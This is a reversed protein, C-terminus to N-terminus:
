GRAAVAPTGALIEQLPLTADARLLFVDRTAYRSRLEAVFRQLKKADPLVEVFITPRDRVLIERVPNLIDFEYGEADLKLLDIGTVLDHVDVVPVDYSMRGAISLEGGSQLFSGPPTEDQDALPVVLTMRDTTKHGVVAAELVRVHNLGNLELNRRLVRSTHPHPEVATYEAERARSAGCVTYLGVNAGIELIRTARSSFYQWARTEAGEWGGHGFWFLNRVVISKVNALRLEPEDVLAFSSLRRDPQKYRLCRLITHFLRRRRSGDPANVYATRLPVVCGDPIRNLVAAYGNRLLLRVRTRVDGSRAPRVASSTTTLGQVSAMSM